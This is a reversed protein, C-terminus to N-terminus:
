YLNLVRIVELVVEEEIVPSMPISLVEQSIKETFPFSCNSFEQLAKQRHPPIPYHILYGIENKELYDCFEKRNKVRIVFLHFVHNKNRDWFPLKIKENKIESLYRKAINRRHSNDKDLAPLKKLLFGAQVEDLRSNVGVYDNVYKSSTGYNRLKSIVNALEKNNTTVAGGDGLAGLNKTPYFSFGAADALSGAKKGNADEAGHAQAADSILILNNEKTIKRLTQMAALQGYLHTVLIAKVSKDLEKEVAAPDLNFTKEDPEVLVPQLGAQKVALITAIYTNAAVMVKDDKQLKGLEIYAKLILTLADLGNGVGICHQVGCYTAFQTEFEKVAKGLVYHGSALFEQFSKQFAKEYPQNLKKLDLFPIM